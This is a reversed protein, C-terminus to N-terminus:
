RLGAALRALELPTPITGPAPNAPHSEPHRVLALAEPNPICKLFFREYEAREEDTLPANRLRDVLIVLQEFPVYQCCSM